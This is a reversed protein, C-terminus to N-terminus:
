DATVTNGGVAKGGVGYRVREVASILRYAEQEKEWLYGFLCAVSHPHAARERKVAAEVATECLAKLDDGKLGPKHKGYYTSALARGFEEANVARVLDAIDQKKLKYLFPITLAYLETGSIRFFKKARYLYWLNLTDFRTGLIRTLIGEVEKGGIEDRRRWLGSFRIEGEPVEDDFLSAEEGGRYAELFAKQEANAFRYIKRYDAYIAQRVTQEVVERHVDTGTVDAFVEQYGAHARLFGAVEAVDRFALIVRFDDESLLEGEMARIKTEIGSYALLGGSM